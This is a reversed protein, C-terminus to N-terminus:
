EFTMTPATVQITAGEGAGERGYGAIVTDVAYLAEEEFFSIVGMPKLGVIKFM